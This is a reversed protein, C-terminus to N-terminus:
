AVTMRRGISSLRVRNSNGTRRKVETEMDADYESKFDTWSGDVQTGHNRPSRRAKSPSSPAGNAGNVTEGGSDSTDDAESSRKRRRSRHSKLLSPFLRPVLWGIYPLERIQELWQPLAAMVLLCAGYLELLMGLLRFNYFVLGVGLLFPLVGRAGGVFLALVSWPGLILALSALLAANGLM